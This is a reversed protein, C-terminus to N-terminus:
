GYIEFEFPNDLQEVAQCVADLVDDNTVNPYALAQEEFERTHEGGAFVVKGVQCLQLLWALRVTKAKTTHTTRVPAGIGALAEHHLDGGQNAEVVVESIAPYEEIRSRAYARMPEGHALRRGSAHEILFRGDSLRSSVAFATLDSKKKSTVASDIAMVTRTRVSEETEGTWVTIDKETWWTGDMPRPKNEYNKAYDRTHRISHLYELPWKQPWQSRENGYEDHVIPKYHHVRWNGDTIWDQPDEAHRVLQHTISGYMTVTGVFVVRATISMPLVGELITKLRKDALATSYSAEEPEVDDFILLDPRKEGVKLGLTSSDIGRAVFVFGNKAIYQNQRDAVSSGRERIYPTCLEPYDARLLENSDLEMKFTTLHGVAQTASDAFAAAFKVYGHAAAWMPLILYFMTSKGSGRPAAYFDRHAAPVANPERWGKAQDYVDRHFESLSISGDDAKLHDRFYYWAFLAPDNATLRHRVLPAQDEKGPVLGLFLKMLDVGYRTFIEEGLFDRGGSVSESSRQAGKLNGGASM